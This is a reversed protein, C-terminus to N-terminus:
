YGPAANEPNWFFVNKAEPQGLRRPNSGAADEVGGKTDSAYYQKTVDLDAADGWAVRGFELLTVAENVGIAGSPAHRGGAVVQYLKNKVTAQSNADTQSVKKNTADSVYVVDGVDMAEAAIYGPVVTSGDLPRVHKPNITVTTM